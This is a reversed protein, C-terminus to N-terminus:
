RLRLDRVARARRARGERRADRRRSRAAVRCEVGGGRGVRRSRCRRARGSIGSREGHAVRERRAGVGGRQRRVRRGRHDGARAEVRRRWDHGPRAAEHRARRRHRRLRRRIRALRRDGDQPPPRELSGYPSRCEPQARSTADTRAQNTHHDLAIRRASAPRAAFMPCPDRFRTATGIRFSGPRGRLEVRLSGPHSAELSRSGRATRALREWSAAALRSWSRGPCVLTGLALCRSPEVQIRGGRGAAQREFRTGGVILSQFWSSSQSQRVSRSRSSRSDLARDLGKPGVGAM